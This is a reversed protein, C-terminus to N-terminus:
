CLTVPIRPTPILSVSCPGWFIVPSCRFCPVPSPEEGLVPRHCRPAPLRGTPLFPAAARLEASREWTGQLIQTHQRTGLKHPVGGLRAIVRVNGVLVCCLSQRRLCCVRGQDGRLHLSRIAFCTIRCQKWRRFACSFSDM